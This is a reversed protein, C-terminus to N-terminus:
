GRGRIRGLRGPRRLKLTRIHIHGDGGGLNWVEVRMKAVRGSLGEFDLRVAPDPPLRRYEEAYTKEGGGALTLVTKLGVDMSATTVDIGSVARPKSFVLELVAPNANKTRAMTGPDSDIMDHGWGLDFFSHTFTVDQGDFPLEETVLAPPPTLASAEAQVSPQSDTDPVSREKGKCALSRDLVGPNRLGVSEAHVGGNEEVRVPPRVEM